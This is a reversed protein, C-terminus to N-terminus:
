VYKPIISISLILSFSIFSVNPLYYKRRNLSINFDFSFPLFLIMATETFLYPAPIKFHLVSSNFLKSLLVLFNMVMCRARCGLLSISLTYRLLSIPPRPNILQSPHILISSFLKPYYTLLETSGNISPTFAASVISYLSVTFLFSNLCLHILSFFSSHFFSLIYQCNTLFIGSVVSSYSVHAHSLFASKFTSVSAM